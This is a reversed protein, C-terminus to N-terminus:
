EDPCAGSAASAYNAFLRQFFTHSFMIRSGSQSSAGMSPRFDGAAENIEAMADMPSFSM